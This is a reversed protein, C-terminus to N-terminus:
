SDSAYPLGGDDDDNDDARKNAPLYEHPYGATSCDTGIGGAIRHLQHRDRRRDTPRESRGTTRGRQLRERAHNEGDKGARVFVTVAGHRGRRFQEGREEQQRGDFYFTVRSKRANKLKKNLGNGFNPSRPANNRKL